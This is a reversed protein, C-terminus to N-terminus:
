SRRRAAFGVRTGGFEAALASLQRIWTDLLAPIAVALLAASAHRWGPVDRASLMVLLDLACSVLLALGVFLANALVVRNHPLVRDLLEAIVADRYAEWEERHGMLRNVNAERAQDATWAVLQRWAGYQVAAAALVLGLFALKGGFIHGTQPKEFGLRLAAFALVVLAAVAVWLVIRRALLEREIAAGRPAHVQL